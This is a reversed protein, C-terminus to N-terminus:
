MPPVDQSKFPNLWSILSKKFTQKNFLYQMNVSPKWLKKIFWQQFFWFSESAEIFKRRNQGQFHTCSFPQTGTFDYVSLRMHCTFKPANERCGILPRCQLVDVLWLSLFALSTETLMKLFDYIIKSFWLFLKDKHLMDLLRNFVKSVM